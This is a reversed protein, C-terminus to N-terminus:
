FISISQFTPNIVPKPNPVTIGNTTDDTITIPVKLYALEADEFIYPRGITIM